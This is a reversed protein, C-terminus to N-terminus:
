PQQTALEVMELWRNKWDLSEQHIQHPLRAFWRALSPAPSPNSHYAQFAQDVATNLTQHLAPLTYAETSELVTRRHIWMDWAIQWIRRTVQGSWQTGTTRRGLSEYYEQQTIAWSPSLFGDLVHQTGLALQTRFTTSAPSSLTAPPQWPTASIAASLLSLLGAQLDPATSATDLFSSLESIGNERISCADPHECQIVHYRHSEEEGCRPCQLMAAPQGWRVLNKGIPLTSCLWKPIWLRQHVAIRRLALASASWNLTTYTNDCHLRKNWFIETPKKHYIHQARRATWCPLRYDHHWISWQRPFPQLHFPAPPPQRSTLTAWYMKALLDMDINLRAWRDLSGYDLHDDQHGRVHLFSWQLPSQSILYRIGSLLDHHPRHPGIDYPSLINTLAASCDCGVTISGSTILHYSLSLLFSGAYVVCSCLLFCVLSSV